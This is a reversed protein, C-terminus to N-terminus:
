NDNSDQDVKEHSKQNKDWFERHHRAARWWIAVCTCVALPIGLLTVLLTNVYGMAHMEVLTFGVAIAIIAVVVLKSM